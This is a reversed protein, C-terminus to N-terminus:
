PPPACRRAAIRRAHRRVPAAAAARHGAAGSRRAAVWRGRTYHVPVGDKEDGLLVAMRSPGQPRPPRSQARKSRSPNAVAGPAPGGIAAIGSGSVVDGLAEMASPSSVRPRLSRPANARQGATKKASRKKWNNTPIGLCDSRSKVPWWRRRALEVDTASSLLERLLEPLGGAPPAPTEVM